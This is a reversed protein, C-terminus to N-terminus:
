RRFGDLFAHRAIALLADPTRWGRLLSRGLGDLLAMLVLAMDAPDGDLVGDRAGRELLTTIAALMREGADRLPSGELKALLPRTGSFLFRVLPLNRVLEDFYTAVVRDLAEHFTASESTLTGITATFADAHNIVLAEVLEEKSGFFRYLSGVAFESARAVEEMTMGDIGKEVLLGEAAALIEQRHRERERERRSPTPEATM